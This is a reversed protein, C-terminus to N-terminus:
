PPPPCCPTPCPTAAAAGARGAAGQGQGDDPLGRGARGAAVLAHGARVRRHLGPHPHPLAPVPAPGRRGVGGLSALETNPSSLGGTPFLGPFSGVGVGFAILLMIGLWFEPMAYLTLSAGLSVRDFLSNRRWAGRIGIWLGIVTSLMTSLGLLLVTPWIREGIVESVPRRFKYSIGLDGSLTDSVYNAFQEHLPKGLGFSERLVQVQEAPVLRNRTLNKAPDGPLVRFLFFNFVLVFALSLLAGLLKAGLRRQGASPRFTRTSTAAMPAPRRSASTRPRGAGCPWCCGPRGSCRWGSPSRARGAPRLRRRRRRRRGGAPHRHQPLQLHRVPVAGGRGPRAPGPLRRLPRQPLGPARRLLLDRRVARRRLADAADAQRHRGAQGPRHHGEAARLAQRVRPQLLLQRVPQGPRRRGVQLQALRLHLDLAPLRPRARGGLGVRVHRVRGPRHDRDPPEGGGGQGRHRHRHRAALGAHVPGVAPLHQVGAQRVAPVQLPRSGDPMERVKDGDTDKYGAEDLLRNAEALDFNYAEGDAPQFTLNQYLAPIVGTAPTGYGGLVRDVLAQKDIAHAIAQRVRKDKLAPHGDGIPEGSDLAAGTNFALEDFGSYDGAVATIGETDKLSNFPAPDLGDAFDIEGKKLAQLQADANNFVRYVVEDIKPAGAWYSKNATLRVFQGTSREALVFPGSGVANKENDFTTVEKEDIDKWIHEPLIPVALRLMTPSPEKTTMVLTADDPAEVTKINSVYNGYNTQEFSGKMIRNFTYAADKATLPQGDSWKVGQRIKYTWTLEDDSVEWSEALGPVPSFDKQSYGVLQDYMLAWVEYTEALIGIFPNLSDVDNVIGVTFTLKGAPQEQATVGPAATLALLAALVAM